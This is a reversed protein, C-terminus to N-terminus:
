KTKSHGTKINNTKSIIDISSSSGVSVWVSILFFQLALHINNSLFPNLYIFLVYILGAGIIAASMKLIAKKKIFVLNKREELYYGFTFGVLAGMALWIHSPVYPANQTLFLLPLALIILCVGILSQNKKKMYNCILGYIVLTLVAFIIGGKIDTHSHYGLQNLAFAISSLLLFAFMYFWPNQLEWALWGWFAAATQMHGSPFAYGIKNLHEALPVQWISKLYANLIMSFLLIFLARCFQPRKPTFYGITIVIILFLDNTAFLAIKALTDVLNINLELM